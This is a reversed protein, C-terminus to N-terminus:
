PRTGLWPDDLKVHLRFAKAIAVLQAHSLHQKAGQAAEFHAYMGGPLRIGANAPATNRNHDLEIILPDGILQIMLNRNTAGGVNVINFSTCGTGSCTVPVRLTSDRAAIPNAVRMTISKTSAGVELWHGASWKVQVTYGDQDAWGMGSRGAITVPTASKPVREPSSLDTVAVDTHNKPDPSSFCRLVLAPFGPRTHVQANRSTEVLGAPLWTPTFESHLLIGPTRHTAVANHAPPTSSGHLVVPVTIAAAAAVVAAAVAGVRRQRRRAAGRHIANLDVAHPSRGEDASLQERIQEEITSV